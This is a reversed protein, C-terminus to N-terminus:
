RSSEPLTGKVQRNGDEDERKREDNHLKQMTDEIALRLRLLAAEAEPNSIRLATEPTYGAATAIKYFEHLTDEQLNAHRTLADHMDELDACLVAKYLAMEKKGKETLIWQLRKMDAAPFLPAVKDPRPILERRQNKLRALRDEMALQLENDIRGLYERLDITADELEECTDIYQIPEM